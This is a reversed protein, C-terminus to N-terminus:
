RCCSDTSIQGDVQDPRDEPPTFLMRRVYDPDVADLALHEHEGEVIPQLREGIQAMAKAHRQHEAILEDILPTLQAGRGPREGWVHRALGAFVIDIDIEDLRRHCQGLMDRATDACCGLQAVTDQVLDDEKQQDTQAKRKRRPKPRKQRRSM